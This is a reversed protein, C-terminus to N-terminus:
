LRDAVVICQWPDWRGAIQLPLLPPIAVAGPYAQSVGSSARIAALLVTALDFHPFSAISGNRPGPQGKVPRVESELFEGLRRGDAGLDDLDVSAPAVHDGQVDALPVFSTDLKALATPSPDVKGVLIRYDALPTCCHTGTPEADRLNFRYAATAPGNGAGTLEAALAAPDRRIFRHEKCQPNRCPRGPTREATSWRFRAGVVLVTDVWVRKIPEQGGKPEFKGYIILDGEVAEQTLLHKTGRVYDDADRSGVRCFTHIPGGEAFICPDQNSGPTDPGYGDAIVVVDANKAITADVVVASVRYPVRGPPGMPKDTNPDRGHPFFFARQTM